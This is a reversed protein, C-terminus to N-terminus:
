IMEKKKAPYLDSKEKTKLTKRTVPDYDPIHRMSKWRIIMIMMLADNKKGCHLITTLLRMRNLSMM